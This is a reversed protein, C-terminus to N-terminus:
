QKFHSFTITNVNEEGIKHYLHSTMLSNLKVKRQQLSFNWKYNYINDDKDNIVQQDKKIVTSTIERLMGNVRYLVVRYV